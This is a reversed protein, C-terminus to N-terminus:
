QAGLSIRAAVGDRHAPHHHEAPHRPRVLDVPDAVLELVHLLVVRESELAEGLAVEGVGFLHLVLRPRDLQPDPLPHARLAIASPACIPESCPHTRTTWSRSSTPPSSCGRWPRMPLPTKPRARRISARRRRTPPGTRNAPCRSGSTPTWM